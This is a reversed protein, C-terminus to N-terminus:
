ERLLVKLRVYMDRATQAIAHEKNFCFVSCLESSELLLKKGAKAPHILESLRDDPPSKVRKSNPGASKTYTRPM